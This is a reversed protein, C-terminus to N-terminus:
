PASPADAREAEGGLGLDPVCKPQRGAVEARDARLGHLHDGVARTAAILSKTQPALSSPKWRVPTLQPRSRGSGAPRRCGCRRPRRDRAGVALAASSCRLAADLDAVDELQAGLVGLRHLGREEVLLAGRLRHLHAAVADADRADDAAAISCFWSSRPMTQGRASRARRRRAQHRDAVALVCVTRAAASRSYASSRAAPMSTSSSSRSSRGPTINASM